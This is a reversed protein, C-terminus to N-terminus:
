ENSLKFVLFNLIAWNEIFNSSKWFEGEIGVKEILKGTHLHRENLDRCCPFKHMMYSMNNIIPNHIYAMIQIISLRYPSHTLNFSKGYCSISNKTHFIHESNSIERRRHEKLCKEFSKKRNSVRQPHFEIRKLM